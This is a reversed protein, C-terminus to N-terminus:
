GMVVRAAYISVHLINHQATQSEFMLGENTWKILEKLASGHKAHRALPAERYVKWVLKKPERKPRFKNRGVRSVRRPSVIKVM